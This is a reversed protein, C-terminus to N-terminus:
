FLVLSHQQEAGKKALQIDKVKNPFYQEVKALYEEGLFSQELQDTFSFLRNSKKKSKSAQLVTQKPVATFIMSEDEKFVTRMAAVVEEFTVTYDAGTIPNFKKKPSCNFEATDKGRRGFDGKSLKLDKIKVQEIAKNNPM